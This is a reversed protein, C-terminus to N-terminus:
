RRRQQWRPAASLLCGARMRWGSGAARLRLRPRQACASCRALARRRPPCSWSPRPRRVGGAPRTCRRRAAWGAARGSRRNRRCGRSGACWGRTGAQFVIGDQATMPVASWAMGGASSSAMARWAWARMVMAGPAGVQGHDVVRAQDGGDDEVGDVGGGSCGSGVDAFPGPGRLHEPRARPRLMLRPGRM